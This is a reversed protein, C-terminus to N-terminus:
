FVKQISQSYQKSVKPFSKTYMLTKKQISQPYKKSVKHISKPYKKSVNQIIKPYNLFLKPIRSVKLISKPISKPYKQSVIPISNQIM